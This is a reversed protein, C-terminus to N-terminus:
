TIQGLPMDASHGTEDGADKPEAPRTQGPPHGGLADRLARTLVALQDAKDRGIMAEILRDIDAWAEAVNALLSRGKASLQLVNSRAEDPHPSRLITGADLLRVTMTSMSAPSLDFARALDAQSAKGMRDLADLIRAQRPSIGLGTLRLRLREEVLAASHLLFHLKPADHQM